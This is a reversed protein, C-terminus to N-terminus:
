RELERPDVVIIGQGPGEYIEVHAVEGTGSYFRVEARSESPMSLWNGNRQANLTTTFGDDWIIVIRSAGQEISCGISEAQAQNQGYFSCNSSYNRVGRDRGEAHVDSSTAITFAVLLNAVLAGRYFLGSNLKM